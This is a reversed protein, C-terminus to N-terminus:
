KTKKTKDTGNEEEIKMNIMKVLQQVQQNYQEQLEFLTGKLELSNMEEIKKSVM